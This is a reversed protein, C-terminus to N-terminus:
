TLMNGVACLGRRRHAAGRESAPVARMPESVANPLMPTAQVLEHHHGPVRTRQKARRLLPEFLKM